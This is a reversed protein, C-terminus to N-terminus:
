LIFSPLTASIVVGGQFLDFRNIQTSLLLFCHCVSANAAAAVLAETSPSSAENEVNAAVVTNPM